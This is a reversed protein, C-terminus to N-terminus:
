IISVDDDGQKLFSRIIALRPWFEEQQLIVGAKLDERLKNEVIVHLRELQWTLKLNSAVLSQRELSIRRGKWPVEFACDVTDDDVWWKEALIAM